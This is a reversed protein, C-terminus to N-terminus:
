GNVRPRLAGYKFPRQRTLAQSFTSLSGSFTQGSLMFTNALLLGLFSFFREIEETYYMVKKRRQQSALYGGRKVEETRKSANRPVVCFIFSGSGGGLDLCGDRERGRVAYFTCRFQFAGREQKSCLASCWVSCHVSVGEGVSERAFSHLSFGASYLVYSQVTTYPSFLPNSATSTPPPPCKGFPFIFATLAVFEWGAMDRGSEGPSLLNECDVGTPSVRRFDVVPLSTEAIRPM